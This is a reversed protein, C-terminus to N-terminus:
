TPWTMSSASMSSPSVSSVAAGSRGDGAPSLSPTGGTEEAFFHEAFSRHAEELNGSAWNALGLLGATTGREYYDGEKMLDLARRAYTM